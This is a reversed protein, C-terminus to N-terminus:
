AGAHRASIREVSTWAKQWTVPPPIAPLKFRTSGSPFPATISGVLKVVGPM